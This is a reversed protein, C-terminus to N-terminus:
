INLNENSIYEKLQTLTEEDLNAFTEGFRELIPGGVLQLVDLIRTLQNQVFIGINNENTMADSAEMELIMYFESLEHQDMVEEFVEFFRLQNLANFEKLLTGDEGDRELDTYADVLTMQTLMYKAVSNVRFRTAEGDAIYYAIAIINQALAQKEELPLYHPKVHSAIFEARSNEDASSVSNVFDLIKM